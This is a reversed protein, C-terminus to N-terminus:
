SGLGSVEDPSLTLPEQSSTLSNLCATAMQNVDLSECAKSAKESAQSVMADGVARAKEIAQILSGRKKEPLFEIAADIIANVGAEIADGDLGKLFDRESINKEGAETSCCCWLYDVSKELDNFVEAFLKFENDFLSLPNIGSEAKIRTLEQPWFDITWEQGTKDKFKAM